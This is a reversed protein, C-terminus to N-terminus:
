GLDLHDPLDLINEGLLVDPLSKAASWLGSHKRSYHKCLSYVKKQDGLKVLRREMETLHEFANSTYGGTSLFLGGAKKENAVIKIFESIVGSGVKTESRWHKVEVYYEQDEGTVQCRLILDKGGDKAPPTLTVTFGLGDFVEALMREVDRWEMSRLAIPNQAVFLALKKSLDRIAIQVAQDAPTEQRSISRAWNELQHLGILELQFPLQREAVALAARSFESNSVLVVRDFNGLTASGILDRVTNLQIRMKHCKVEIGIRPNSTAKPQSREAVFDVGLREHPNTQTIQYGEKSLLEELVIGLNNEIGKPDLVDHDELLYSLADEGMKSLGSASMNSPNKPHRSM